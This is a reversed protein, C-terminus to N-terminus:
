ASSPMRSPIEHSSNLRTSKRDQNMIQMYVENYGDPNEMAFLELGEETLPYELEWKILSYLITYFIAVLGGNFVRNINGDSTIEQTFVKEEIKANLLPSRVRATAFYKGDLQIEYEFAKMRTALCDKFKDM